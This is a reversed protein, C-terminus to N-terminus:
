GKVYHEYYYINADRLNKSINGKEFKMSGDEKHRVKIADTYYTGINKEALRRALVSEEGFLFMNEDYPLGLIDFVAKSFIVFSGHVMAIEKLRKEKKHKKCVTFANVAKGWAIGCYMYFPKDKRCGKYVLREKFPSMKKMMPNQRKGNLNVVSPAIVVTDTHSLVTEDFKEVLTDPNAVILWEFEYNNLAYEIGRNNGYSYGKNPVNIFDADCENSIRESESKTDDDFYANVVIVRYKGSEFKEGLNKTLDELDGTNRYVLVVFIYKYYKSSM